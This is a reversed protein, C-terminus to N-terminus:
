FVSKPKQAAFEKLYFPEFYAVDEFAKAELKQSALQRFNSASPFPINLFHHRESELMEQAKPAGDGFFYHQGADSYAGEELIKAEVETWQNTALNYAATYVEMRRADIMPHLIADDPFEQSELAAAVLLETGKASILPISLSYALAKASAVGIRLGTYSGPGSGVAIAELQDAKIEAKKLAEAIFLHLKESHIYQDSQAEILQLLEQDKFLAVSCNKTSTELALIM